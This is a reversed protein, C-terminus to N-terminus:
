QVPETNLVQHLCREVAAVLLKRDIADKTAAATAVAAEIAAREPLAGSRAVQAALAALAQPAGDLAGIVVRALKRDPDFVAACGAEAFEGTKRCFKHYGWRAVEGLAPVRVAVIVEDEALDTTYAGHMFRDMPVRRTGAASSIEIQAGLASMALVWDAAPDAHALSGGVTGRNRIARYAIGGAVSQLLGARLPAHVGDEIEAHTVAAGIRIADGDRAVQRLEPLASLDIVQRPRTLRLNLMPGMSQGGGMVKATGAAGALMRLADALSAPRQYDFSAAKM